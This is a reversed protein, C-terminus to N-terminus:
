ATPLLRYAAEISEKFNEDVRYWEGENIAYRGGDHVISGVLASRISSKQDPKADNSYTAVIKHSKLQEISLEDLRGGLASTYNRLLLDPYAGRLGPGQFCYGVDDDDYSVPLTLEFNELGHRINQAAIGDLVGILRKDTVPTVVDIVQFGTKRYAVSAFFTLAESAIAPLDSIAYEGTVKLSRAGTLSDASASDRTSGSIKRILDLADDIGFEKFERQFPSLDIGRLADALNARELRRLKKEDLANLAVRLGFDAELNNENLYM